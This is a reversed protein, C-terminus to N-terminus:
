TPLSRGWCWRNSFGVVIISIPLGLSVIHRKKMGNIQKSTGEKKVRLFTTLAEAGLNNPGNFIM